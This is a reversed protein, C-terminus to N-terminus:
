CLMASEGEVCVLQRVTLQGMVQGGRHLRVFSAWGMRCLMASAGEICVLQRVALQGIMQGGRHIAQRASACM